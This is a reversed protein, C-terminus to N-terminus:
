KKANVTKVARSALLKQDATVLRLRHVRATAALMRDALDAHFGAPLAYADLAVADDVVLSQAGLSHRARELWPAVGGKFRVQDLSALRAIELTTVSSVFLAERPDLLLARTGKGLLSPTEVAWVFVHTDLLLSV